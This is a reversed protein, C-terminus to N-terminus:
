QSIVEYDTPSYATNAWLTLAPINRREDGRSHMAAGSYEPARVLLTLISSSMSCDPVSGFKTALIQGGIKTVMQAHSGFNTALTLELKWWKTLM